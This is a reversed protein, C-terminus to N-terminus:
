RVICTRMRATHPVMELPCPPCNSSMPIAPKRARNRHGPGARTGRLLHTPSADTNVRQRPSARRGLLLLVMTFLIPLPTPSTESSPTLSVQTSSQSSTPAQARATKHHSRFIPTPPSAIKRIQSSPVMPSSPHYSPCTITRRQPCSPQCLPGWFHTPLPIM